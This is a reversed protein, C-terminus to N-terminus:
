GMQCNSSQIRLRKKPRDVHTPKFLGSYQESDKSFKKFRGQVTFV